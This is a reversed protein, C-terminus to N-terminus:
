IQRSAGGRYLARSDIYEEVPPCVLFRISLGHAARQRIESSSVEIRHGVGIDALLREPWPPDLHLSAATLGARDVGPRDMAVFRCMGLLDGIDRWMHIERLTDTGVIFHLAADPFRQRRLERVTDITYSIGGRRLEVDSVEAWPTGKLAAELMALRHKGDILGAAAKHPPRASPVFLVRELGFHERADQALILHGIHVPNFTGGLVGVRTATSNQSM